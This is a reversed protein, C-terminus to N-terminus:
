VLRVNREGSSGRLIESSCVRVGAMLINIYTDSSFYPYASVILRLVSLYIVAFLDYSSWVNYVCVVHTVVKSRWSKDNWLLDGVNKCWFRTALHTLVYGNSVLTGDISLGSGWSGFPALSAGFAYTNILKTADIQFEGTKMQTPKHFDHNWFDDGMHYM